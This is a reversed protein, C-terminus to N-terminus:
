RRTMPVCFFKGNEAQSIEADEMFTGIRAIRSTSLAARAVTSWESSNWLNETSFKPHPSEM